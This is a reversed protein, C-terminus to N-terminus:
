RLANGIGYVQATESGCDSTVQLPIGQSFDAILEFTHASIKRFFERCYEETLCRILFGIADGMRNSPFVGAGLWM